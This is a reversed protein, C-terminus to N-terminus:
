SNCPASRGDWFGFFLVDEVHCNKGYKRGYYSVADCDDIRVWQCYGPIWDSVRVSREPHDIIWLRFGADEKEAGTPCWEAIVITQWDPSVDAAYLFVHGSRNPDFGGRVVIDALHITWKEWVSETRHMELEYKIRDTVTRGKRFRVKSEQKDECKIWADGNEDVRIAQCQGPFSESIEVSEKKEDVRWVRSSPMEDTWEVLYLTSGNSGIAYKEQFLRNGINPIFSGAILPTVWTRHAGVGFETPRSFQVEYM